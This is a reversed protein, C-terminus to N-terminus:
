ILAKLNVILWNWRDIQSSASLHLEGLLLTVLSIPRQNLIIVDILKPVTNDYVFIIAITYDNDTYPNSKPLVRHNNDIGIEIDPLNSPKILTM